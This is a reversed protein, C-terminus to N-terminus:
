SKLRRSLGRLTTGLKKSGMQALKIAGSGQYNADRGMDILRHMAENASQPREDPDKKLLDDILRCLAKPAKPLYNRLPPHAKTTIRQLTVLDNRDEFPSITTLMEYLLIGFAFLDSRNDVDKALAQEPAMARCTGLLVASKTLSGEDTLWEKAVGFDTIKPQGAATVLINESKLDRHIIGHQHAAELGGALSIGLELVYRPPIPGSKLIERLTRGEVYEMVICELGDEELLDYVRVIAPHDLGAALRAERRFRERRTKSIRADPRLRKIAVARDLGNDHALLIQGMGGVALPRLIEYPGIKKPLSTLTSAM